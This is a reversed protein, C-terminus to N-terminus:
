KVIRTAGYVALSTGLVGVAVWMVREYDNMTKHRILVDNQKLLTEVQSERLKLNLDQLEISRKLSNNTLVLEDKTILEKRISEAKDKSLLVGTFPAKEGANINVADECYSNNPTQLLVAISFILM